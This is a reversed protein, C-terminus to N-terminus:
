LKEPASNKFIMLKNTGTYPMVTLMATDRTMMATGLSSDITTKLKFSEGGDSTEYLRYKAAKKDFAAILGHKSDRFRMAATKNTFMLDKNVAALASSKKWSTGNDSTYFLDGKENLIFGESGGVYSITSTKGADSPRGIKTSASGDFHFTAFPTALWGTLKDDFSLINTSSVDLKEWTKGGDRSLKANSCDCGIVFTTENVIEAGSLCPQTEIRNTTWSKGGDNTLYVFDQFLMIGKDPNMFNAVTPSNTGDILKTQASVLTWSSGTCSATSLCLLLLILTAGAGYLAKNHRKSKM